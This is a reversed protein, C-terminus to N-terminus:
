RLLIVAVCQNVSFADMYTRVYVYVYRFDQNLASFV